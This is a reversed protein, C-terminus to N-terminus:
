RTVLMKEPDFFQAKNNTVMFLLEGKGQNNAAVFGLVTGAKVQQGNYVNASSLHSYTTFYYGHNITIGVEEGLDFISSIRGNSAAKVNAGVETSIYIGDSKGTIKTGPITYKGYHVAVKPNDVPWQLNKGEGRWIGTITNDEGENRKGPLNFIIQQEIRVPVKQGNQAGANWDGSIKLLRIAEDELGFGKDSLKKFSSLKGNEDVIFQITVAGEAKNAIAEKPYQINREIFHAFAVMGKPYFPPNEVRTFVRPFNSEENTTSKRPLPYGQVVVEKLDTKGLQGNLNTSTFVEVVGNAGREGYKKKANEGKIVNITKIREPKINQLEFEKWDMPEGGDLIVMPKNQKGDKGNVGTIKISSARVEITDDEPAVMTKNGTKEEVAIKKESDKAKISGLQQADEPRQAEILDTNNEKSAFYEEITKLVAGALQKRSDKSRLLAMDNVNSLYGLEVLLSPCIKNEDIVWIKQERQRIVPKQKYVTELNESLLSSLASSQNLFPSNANPINIEAGRLQKNKSYLAINNVHLSIFLDANNQEILASRQQPTLTEDGERSLIIKINSNSNLEKIAKALSLTIDKEKLGDKSEAGGDAGGHGADIVVTYTKDFTNDFNNASKEKAQFAFFVFVFCTLPLVMLRRIYSYRPKKSTTLMSLRRKIPSHFFSNTLAFDHEPYTSRLLMAAFASTDGDNIAKRDAIFEHIMNLEKRILWLFPNVWGIVLLINVFLKDVSHKEAVHTLEHQLIHKGYATEPDINKNWFIYKFFSFPSGKATTSVFHINNWSQKPNAKILRAIRVLGILLWVLFTTSILAFGLTAINDLNWYVETSKASAEVFADSTSVVTLLKIAVPQENQNTENWYQIKAIPIIWSIILVSLLYFRNYQHFRKNRLAFYYYSFLLGSCIIVKLLYYAFTLM